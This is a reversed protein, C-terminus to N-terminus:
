DFATSLFFEMTLAAKVIETKPISEGRVMTIARTPKEPNHSPVKDAQPDTSCQLGFSALLYPPLVGSRAKIESTIGM